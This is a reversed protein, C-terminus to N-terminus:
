VPGDFFARIDAALLDPAEMAAFHGGREMETWRVINHAKDAFVRIAYDTTFVAVATPVTGRPKPAWMAHDHFREYYSNATSRATGTLWYLMVNTLLRDKDVADEPLKAAPDTWEHFKEVIWALQGVPSDTLGFAVTDPRSGQVQMYASGGDQFEKMAAFRERDRDSLAAMDAPDGTPFAFMANLHVGIVRDPQGAGILPAIFAGVDGGQVGFRAYGLRTMLEAFAAAARGDTWGAETLPSSFGFGPLSPIVLHFRDSLRDIVDLFEVVSGPWGHLLLLPTADPDASRVHLFHITAGDIATTFQPYSNLLEEQARWDYDNVWYEALERLYSVPVGRSWDAGALEDPWRTTAVRRWLDDLQATPITIRFPHMDTGNRLRHTPRTFTVM